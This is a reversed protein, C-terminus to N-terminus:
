TSLSNTNQDLRNPTRYADQVQVFMERELNSFFSRYYQQFYKRLRQGPCRRNGRNRNNKYKTKKCHGPNLQHKTAPEKTKNQKQKIIQITQYFAIDM